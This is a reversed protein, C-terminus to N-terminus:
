SAKKIFKHPKSNDFVLYDYGRRVSCMSCEDKNEQYYDTRKIYHDRMNYFQGACVVCLCLMMPKPRRRIPKRSEEVEYIKMDNLRAVRIM